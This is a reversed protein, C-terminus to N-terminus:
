DIACGNQIRSRDALEERRKIEMLRQQLYCNTIDMEATNFWPEDSTESNSYAYQRVLKPKPLIEVEDCCSSKINIDPIEKCCINGM